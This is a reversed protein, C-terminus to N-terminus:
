RATRAPADIPRKHERLVHLTSRVPRPVCTAINSLSVIEVSGEDEVTISCSTRLGFIELHTLGAEEEAYSADSISSTPTTRFLDCRSMGLVQTRARVEIELYCGEPVDELTRGHFYVDHDVEFHLTDGAYTYLALEGPIPGSAVADGAPRTLVYVLVIAIVVVCVTAAAALAARRTRPSAPRAADRAVFAALEDDFLPHLHPAVRQTFLLRAEAFVHTMDRGARLDERDYLAVDAILSRALSRAGTETDIPSDAM